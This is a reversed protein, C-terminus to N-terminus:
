AHSYHCSFSLSPFLPSIVTYCYLQKNASNVIVFTLEHITTPTTPSITSTLLQYPRLQLSAALHDLRTAPTPRPRLSAAQHNLRTAPTPRLRYISTGTKSTYQILRPTDIHNSARVALRVHAQDQLALAHRQPRCDTCRTTRPSSLANRSLTTSTTLLGSLSDYTSQISCQELM